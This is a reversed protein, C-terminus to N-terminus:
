RVQIKPRWRASGSDAMLPAVSGNRGSISVTVSRGSSSGSGFGPATALWRVMAAAPMAPAERVAGTDHEGVVFL